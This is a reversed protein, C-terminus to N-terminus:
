VACQEVFFNNSTCHNASVWPRTPCCFLSLAVSCVAIVQSVWAWRLSSVHFDYITSLSINMGRAVAHRSLLNRQKRHAEIEEVVKQTTKKEEMVKVKRKEKRNYRSQHCWGVRYSRQTNDKMTIALIGLWFCSICFSCCVLCASFHFHFLPSWPCCVLFESHLCWCSAFFPPFSFLLSFFVSRWWSRTRRGHCLFVHPWPGCSEQATESASLLFCCSIFFFLLLLFRSQRARCGSRLICSLIFLYRSVLILSYSVHRRLLAAGLQKSIEPFRGLSNEHKKEWLMLLDFLSFRQPGRRSLFSPCFHSNGNLPGSTAFNTDTGGNSYFPCEGHESWGGGILWWSCSFRLSKGKGPQERKSRAVRSALSFGIRAFLFFCAFSRKTHRSHLSVFYSPPITDSLFDIMWSWCWCAALSHLCLIIWSWPLVFPPTVTEVHLPLSAPHSCCSVAHWLSILHERGKGREERQKVEWIWEAAWRRIMLATNYLAHIEETRGKRKLRCEHRSENTRENMWSMGTKCRVFLSQRTHWLPLTHAAHSGHQVFWCRAAECWGLVVVFWSQLLPLCLLFWVPLFRMLTTNNMESIVLICLVNVLLCCFFFRATLWAVLSAYLCWEVFRDRKCSPSKTGSITLHISAQSQRLRTRRWVM